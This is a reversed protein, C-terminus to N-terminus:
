DLATPRVWTREVRAQFPAPCFTALPQPNRGGALMTLTQVKGTPHSRQQSSLAHNFRRASITLSKELDQPMKVSPQSAIRDPQIHLPGAPMFCIGHLLKKSGRGAEVQVVQGRILRAPIQLLSDPAPDTLFGGGM